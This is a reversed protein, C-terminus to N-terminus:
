DGGGRGKGEGEGEGGRREERERRGGREEEIGEGERRGKMKKQLCTRLSTVTYKLVSTYSSVSLFFVLLLKTLKM